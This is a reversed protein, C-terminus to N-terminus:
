KVVRVKPKSRGPTVQQRLTAVGEDVWTIRYRRATNNQMLVFGDEQHQDSIPHKELQCVYVTEHPRGAALDAPVRLRAGCKRIRLKKSALTNALPQTETTKEPM